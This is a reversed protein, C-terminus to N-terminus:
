PFPSFEAGNIFQTQHRKVCLIQPKKTFVSWFGDNKGLLFHVWRKTIPVNGSQRQGKSDQKKKSCVPIAALFALPFIRSSLVQGGFHWASSLQIQIERHRLVSCCLLCGHGGLVYCSSKLLPFHIMEKTSLMIVKSYMNLFCSQVTFWLIDSTSLRLQLPLTESKHRLHTRYFCSM